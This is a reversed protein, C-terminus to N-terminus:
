KRGTDWHEPKPTEATRYSASPLMLKGINALMRNMNM